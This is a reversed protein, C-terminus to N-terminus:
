KFLDRGRDKKLIEHGRDKKVLERGRDKRLREHGRDKHIKVQNKMMQQLRDTEQTEGTGTHQRLTARLRDVSEQPAIGVEGAQMRRVQNILRPIARDQAERMRQLTGTDMQFDLM